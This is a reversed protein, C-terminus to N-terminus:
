TLSCWCERLGRNTTLSLKASSCLCYLVSLDRSNVTSSPFKLLFKGWKSWFFCLAVPDSLPSFCGHVSVAGTLFHVYRLQRPTMRRSDHFSDPSSWQCERGWFFFTQQEKFKPTKAYEILPTCIPTGQSNKFSIFPVFGMNELSILTNSFSNDFMFNVCCSLLFVIGTKGKFHQHQSPGGWHDLLIWNLIDVNQCNIRSM